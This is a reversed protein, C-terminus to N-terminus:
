TTLHGPCLFPYPLDNRERCQPCDEANGSEYDLWPLEETGPCGDRTCRCHRDRPEGQHYAAAHAEAFLARLRTLEEEAQGLAAEPDCEIPDPCGPRNLASRLQAYAKATETNGQEIHQEAIALEAEATDARAPQRCAEIITSQWRRYYEHFVQATLLVEADRAQEWQEARQEADALQARLADLDPQVVALAADVLDEANGHCLACGAEFRHGDDGGHPAMLPWPTRTIQTTRLTHVLRQRLPQEPQAPATM